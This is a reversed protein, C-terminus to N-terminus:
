IDFAKALFDAEGSEVLRFAEERAAVLLEEDRALDAATLDSLGAQRLGLVEGPGRLELDRRAIEFGDQTQCLVQLRETEEAAQSGAILICYSQAAGRGVRGRLQHLQALGFREAHEVIMVTANPVDVGVEVVTTCVLAQIEGEKFARAVQNKEEATLQGHLLGLVFGGLPGERLEAFGESASKVPLKESEEVLPYVVYVQRGERIQSAAFELIQPRREVGRLATRVPKRGPPLEDIASTELDGYLALALTRPIPTATMVLLHVGPGKRHLEERQAVGFRHQEDIVALGLGAFEVEDQILAHTGIVMQAAGTAIATLAERRRAGPLGGVLLEVNVGLPGVLAGLTAGHQEALIETPAMLAAQFGAEVAQLMAALAVLTKGSGVDGQLLRSMRVPQELDAAIEGLVRQQAGTLPFPLGALLAPVLRQSRAMPWATQARRALRRRALRLQLAFCEDFALRRRAGAVEEWSRPFHVQRLSEGLGPLGLRQLLEAPLPDQVQPVFEELAAHVLRRFGRSRLGKEKMDASTTYLPIIGGTHLLEPEGTLAVFECEPHTIQLRGQFHEVKGSLALVDGEDFHRQLYRAGQFWVCAIEETGDEVILVFRPRAGPIFRKQRVQGILTVEQGPPVQAIPLIRSRDLYRRPLYYLLDRVTSIGAEGLVAARRIGVGKLQSVPIQLGTPQDM